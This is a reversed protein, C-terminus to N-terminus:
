AYATGAVQLAAPDRPDNRLAEQVSQLAEGPRGAQLYAQAQRLEAAKALEPQLRVADAFRAAAPGPSGAGLYALGLDYQVRGSDPSLTAARELHAVARPYQRARLYAEGLVLALRSVNPFRVALPDLIAITREFRGARNYLDGLELRLALAAQRDPVAELTKIAAGINDAQLQARSLLIRSPAHFAEIEMAQRLLEEAKPGRGTRLYLLALADYALLYKPDAALARQFAEEAEQPRNRYLQLRGRVLHEEPDNPDRAVAQALAAEAADDEKRNLLIKGLIVQARAPPPQQALMPGLLGLAEDSRNLDALVSAAELIVGPSTPMLEAAASFERAADPLWGRMKYLLGLQYRAPGFQPDARQANRFELIADSTRELAVAELGRAYHRDRTQQPTEACAVMGASVVIAAVQLALRGGRAAIGHRRRM